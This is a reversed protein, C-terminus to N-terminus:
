RFLAQGIAWLTQWDVALQGDREAKLVVIGAPTQSPGGPGHMALVHYSSGTITSPVGAQGEGTEATSATLDGERRLSDLYEMAIPLAEALERDSVRHSTWVLPAADQVRFLAGGSARCASVLLPLANAAREDPDTVDALLAKLTEAVQSELTLQAEDALTFRRDLDFHARRASERMRQYLAGSSSTNTTRLIRIAKSAFREFAVRDELECAIDVACLYGTLRALGCVHSAELDEISRETLELAGPQSLRALATAHVFGLQTDRASLGLAQAQESYAVACELAASDQHLDLLAAVHAWAAMSWVPHRGPSVVLLLKALRSEALRPKGRVRDYSAQAYELFPLWGPHLEAISRVRDLTGKVGLVDWGRAYHELESLVLSGELSQVPREQLSLLEAKRRCAQAAGEDGIRLYTNMRVLWANVEHLPSAELQDAREFAEEMGLTGELVGLAFVVNDRVDALMDDALGAHDPEDIRALVRQVAALAPELRGAFVYEGAAAVHELLAVAPSLPEFAELSPILQMLEVDFTASATVGLQRAVDSLWVIAELPAVETEPTECREYRLRAQEFAQTLREGANAIHGLERWDELGSARSLRALLGRAHVSVNPVQLSMSFRVLAMELRTRDRESCGHSECVTLATTLLWRYREAQGGGWAIRRDLWSLLTEVGEVEDGALFRHEAVRLGDDGQERLLCALRRHMDPKLAPDIQAVLAHALDQGRLCYSEDAGALIQAAVLEDLSRFVSARDPVPVLMPVRAVHVPEGELLAFAEALRLADSDLLAIPAALADALSAPLDSARLTRPLQWNGAQYRALGKDLIYQAMRMCARPNGGCLVHIRETVLSLNPADGFVSRLLSHVEPGSLPGLTVRRALDRMLDAAGRGPGPADTATTVLVMRRNRLETALAAILAASPEDLQQLDDVAIMLLRDRCLGRLWDAVAGILERLQISSLTEGAESTADGALTQLPNGAPPLISRLAARADGLRAEAEPMAQSLQSVLAGIAGYRGRASDSGDARLVTAGVLKGELVCADLFRSRGVGPEGEIMFSAGAGRLAEIVAWRVDVLRDSRGVLTPTTLYARPVEAHEDLSLDALATVREMVVAATGPRLTRDMSLLGMVLEGLAPPVDETVRHPAAPTTRWFDRLQDIRRAPYAQRGTLMFYALAGLSYLDARGDLSQQQVTEPPMFPPTGVVGKAVAMPVMSGFDILKARGDATLRVNRTTVDRHVLRRSHLMALSSAIDRLISCVRQWPLPALSRLDEGELLEMTYYPGEHDIGYDYVEIISPHALDVLTHYEREFHATAPEDRHKQEGTRLRKIAMRRETAVDHVCYVAGM